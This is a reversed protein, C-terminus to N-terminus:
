YLHNIGDIDDPQPANVNTLGIWDYMLRSSDIVHALGMAHGQEHAVIAKRHAGNGCNWEDKLLPTIVVKGWWWNQVDPDVSTTDVFVKTFACNSPDDYNLNNYFDLRSQSQITTETYSVPTTTANWLPIGDHIAASNNAVASPSLWFRQGSVGYILKHDHFTQYAWAPGTAVSLLAAILVTILATLACRYSTSM